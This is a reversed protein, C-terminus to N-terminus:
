NNRDSRQANTGDRIRGRKAKLRDKPPQDCRTFRRSRRGYIASKGGHRQTELEHPARLWTQWYHHRPVKTRGAGDSIVSTERCDLGM